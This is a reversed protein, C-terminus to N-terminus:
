EPFNGKSDTTGTTGLWCDLNNVTNFSITIQTDAFHENTSSKPADRGEITFFLGNSSNFNDFIGDIYARMRIKTLEADSYDYYFDITNGAVFKNKYRGQNNDLSISFNSLGETAIMMLSGDPVFNTIDNEDGKSNTIIIKWSSKDMNKPIPIFGRQTRTTTRPLEVVKKQIANEVYHNSIM